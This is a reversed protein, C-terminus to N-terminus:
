CFECNLENALRIENVSPSRLANILTEWTFPKTLSQKWREMVANFCDSIKNEDGQISKIDGESLELQVAMNKWQHPIVSAVRNALVSLTPASEASSGGSAACGPSSPTIINTVL